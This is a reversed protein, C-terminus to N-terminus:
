HGELRHAPVQSKLREEKLFFTVIFAVASIAAAILFVV